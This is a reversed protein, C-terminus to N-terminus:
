VGQDLHRRRRDYPAPRRRRRSGQVSRSCGPGPGRRGASQPVMPPLAGVSGVHGRFSDKEKGTTPDWLRVTSDDSVTAVTKGDPSFALAAVSRTHGVLDAVKKGSNVNWIVPNTLEVGFSALTQGDPAFRIWAVPQDSVNSLTKKKEGSAVDWLTVAKDAGGSALTKGDPSFTLCYVPDTHTIRDKYEGTATDWIRISEDESGTALVRGDPSFAVAHVSNTHGKITLPRVVKVSPPMPPPPVRVVTKRVSALIADSAGAKKLREIVADDVKFSVGAKEVRTIVAPDSIQLEVLKLLDAESLPAPDAAWAAALALLGVALALTLVLM